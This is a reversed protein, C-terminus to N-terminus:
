WGLLRRRNKKSKPTLFGKPIEEEILSDIQRIFETEEAQDVEKMKRSIQKAQDLFSGNIKGVEEDIDFNESVPLRPFEGVISMTM